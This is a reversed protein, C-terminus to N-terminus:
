SEITNSWVGHGQKLARLLNYKARGARINQYQPSDEEDGAILHDSRMIFPKLHDRYFSRTISKGNIQSLKYSTGHTGAKGKVVFPGRFAAALKKKANRQDYLMVLDGPKYIVRRHVGKDHREKQLMKQWNSKELVKFQLSERNAIFNFVANQYEPDRDLVTSLKTKLVSNIADTRIISPLNQLELPWLKGAETKKLIRQLLDNCKEVMGSAKKAGSPASIWIVRNKQLFEKTNHGTFHTGEDGYFGVPSGDRSFKWELCRIVEYSTNGITAFAEVFRSFYDVLVLIYSVTLGKRDDSVYFGEDFDILCDEDDYKAITPWNLKCLEKATLNTTNTQSNSDCRKLLEQYSAKGDTWIWKHNVIDIHGLSDLTEDSKCEPDTFITRSLADAVKNRKGTIHKITINLSTM